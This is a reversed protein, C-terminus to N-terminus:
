NFILCRKLKHYLNQPVPKEGIIEESEDLIDEQV